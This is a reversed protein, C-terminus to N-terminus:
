WATITFMVGSSKKPDSSSRPPEPSGWSPPPDLQLWSHCVRSSLERVAMWVWCDPTGDMAEARDEETRPIVPAEEEESGFFDGPTTNVIVAQYIVYHNAM